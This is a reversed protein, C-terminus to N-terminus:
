QADWLEDMEQMFKFYLTDSKNRRQKLSEIERLTALTKECKRYKELEEILELLNMKLNPVNVGKKEQSKPKQKEPQAEEEGGVTFVSDSVRVAKARPM